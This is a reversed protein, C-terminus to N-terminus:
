VTGGVERDLLVVINTWPYWGLSFAVGLISLVLDAGFGVAIPWSKYQKTGWALAACLLALLLLLTLEM